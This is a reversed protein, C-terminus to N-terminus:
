GIHLLPSLFDKLHDPFVARYGHLHQRLGKAQRFGGDTGIEAHQLFLPMDLTIMATGRQHGPLLIGARQHQLPLGMQILFIGDASQRSLMDFIAIRHNEIGAGGGGGDGVMQPM